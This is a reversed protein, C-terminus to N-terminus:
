VSRDPRIQIRLRLRSKLRAVYSCPHERIKLSRERRMRTEDTYIQPKSFHKPARKRCHDRWKAIAANVIRCEFFQDFRLDRCADGPNDRDSRGAFRRGKRVVFA